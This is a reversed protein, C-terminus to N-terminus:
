QRSYEFGNSWDTALRRALELVIDAEENFIRVVERDNLTQGFDVIWCVRTM